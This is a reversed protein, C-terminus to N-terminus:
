IEFATNVSANRENKPRPGGGPAPVITLQPVITFWAYVDNARMEFGGMHHYKKGGPNAIVRTTRPNAITPKPSSSTMLGRRRRRQDLADDRKPSRIPRSPVSIRNLPM